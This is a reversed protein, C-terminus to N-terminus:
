GASVTFSRTAFLARSACRQSRKGTGARRPAFSTEATWRMGSCRRSCLLTAKVASACVMDAVAGASIAQLEVFEAQGSRRWAQITPVLPHKRHMEDMRYTALILVNTARLRRTM